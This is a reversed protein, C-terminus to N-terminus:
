CRQRQKEDEAAKLSSKKKKSQETNLEQSPFIELYYSNISKHMDTFPDLFHTMHSIM